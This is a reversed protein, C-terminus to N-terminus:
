RSLRPSRGGPRFPEPPCRVFYNRGARRVLRYGKGSPETHRDVIEATLGAIWVEPIKFEACLPLKVGKDYALTTDSVEIM